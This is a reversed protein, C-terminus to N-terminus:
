PSTVSVTVSGTNARDPNIIISYAGPTPLAQVPIDFAGGSTLYFSHYAGTPRLFEITVAGVTNNTVHITVQQGTAGNFTLVANQGPTTTTVTVPPGNPTITATVDAPVDWLRTTVSGTYDSFPDVVVANPGTTTVQRVSFRETGRGENAVFNQLCCELEQGSISVQAEKITVNSTRMAIRQGATSNFSFRANQNAAPVTITTPQGDLTVTGTVDSSGSGLNLTVADGVVFLEAVISYTGSVPLPGLDATVSMEAADARKGTLRVGDPRYIWVNNLLSTGNNVKLNIVQGATGEFTLRRNQREATSTVTVPPGGISITGDNVDPPVEYLNFTMSGSDNFTNIRVRYTGTVPLAVTEIIEARVSGLQKIRGVIGNLLQGNPTLIDVNSFEPLTGSVKMSIRQGTTGTFTMEADQGPATATITVPPGGITLTGTLVPPVDYLSVTATGTGAYIGNVRITYTGTTPLVVTDVFANRGRFNESCNSGNVVFGDPGLLCNYPAFPFVSSVKMSVRQGAVGSFTLRADQGPVTTTVTVPPGGPTITTTVDPPVTYLTLDMSGSTDVDPYITITYTGSAPLVMTDVFNYFDFYDDDYFIAPDAFTWGPISGDPGTIEVYLGFPGVKTNSVNLSVREGATGQFTIKAIQGAAPINVTLPPGGVTMTGTVPQPIEYLAFNITGTSAGSPNINITYTGTVPVLYVHDSWSWGYTDQFLTGDPKSITLSSGFLPVTGPHDLSIIQGETATFTLQANQGPAAITVVVPSGGIVITGAADPPVDALSLTVGGIAAGVPDVVVSYNETAPLVLTDFFISSTSVSSSVLSTGNARRISVTSNSITVNTVNLSVRQGATGAFSLSANQGPTTINVPVPPGSPIIPGSVDPPVNHLTMSMIGTFTSNPDILITYTGTVPLTLTDIFWNGSRSTPSLLNSGDPKIITITSSSITSNTTQLSLRQGTTGDFVLLAIRNAANVSFTKTEGFAIRGAFDVSAATFPSPPVFFDGTSTASGAPTTLSIRGSTAGAPVTTNITSSTAATATATTINFKLQDNAPVPDFNTGNIQVATGPTGITPTFGTIALNQLVEFNTTSAASGSPTTVTIPGTTAGAPVAVVLQTASASTITAAVGNFQVTNEAAVLSFGTGYITVVTGVAGQDPTFEIVAVENSSQRMISTINGAEDYSYIATDGSPTIVAKLRGLEDYIYVTTNTPTQALSVSCLLFVLVTAFFTKAAFRTM